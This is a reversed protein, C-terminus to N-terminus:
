RRIALEHMQGDMQLPSSLTSCLKSVLSAFEDPYPGEIETLLNTLFYVLVPEGIHGPNEAMHRLIPISHGVKCMLVLRSAVHERIQSIYLPPIGASNRELMDFWFKALTGRLIPLNLAVEDLIDLASPIEEGMAGWQYFTPQELSARIWHLLAMATIPIETAALFPTMNEPMQRMSHVRTVLNNLSKLADMTDKVKETNEEETVTDVATTAYAMLWLKEDLLNRSHYPGFTVALLAELLESSQLYTASPPPSAQYARYLKLVNGSSISKERYVDLLTDSVEVDASSLLSAQLEESLLSDKAHSCRTQLGVSIRRLVRGWQRGDSTETSMKALLTQAVFYAQANKDCLPVLELSMWDDIESEGLTGIQSLLTTFRQCFAEIDKEPM